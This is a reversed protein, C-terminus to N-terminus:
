SRAKRKKKPEWQTWLGCTKHKVQRMTKSYGTGPNFDAPLPSHEYARPCSEHLWLGKVPVVLGTPLTVTQDFRSM